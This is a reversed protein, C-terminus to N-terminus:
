CHAVDPLVHTTPRRETSAGDHRADIDWAHRLALPYRGSTGLHRHRDGGSAQRWLRGSPSRRTMGGREELHIGVRRVGQGSGWDDPDRDVRLYGKGDSERRRGECPNIDRDIETELSASM